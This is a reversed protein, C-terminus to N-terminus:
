GAKKAYWSREYCLHCMKEALYDFLALNILNPRMNQETEKGSDEKPGYNYNLNSESSFIESTEIIILISRQAVPWYEIDDNCLVNFLSDVLIFFDLCNNQKQLDSQQQQQQQLLQQQAINDLQNKITANSSTSMKRVPQVPQALYFANSQLLNTIKTEDQNNYHALSILTLHIVFSDLISVVQHKIEKINSAYFISTLASDVM